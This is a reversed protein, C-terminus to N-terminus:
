LFIRVHGVPMHFSAWCQENTSFPWSVNRQPVVEYRDSHGDNFLQHITSAPSPTSFLSVRKCQQPLTLQNLWQPFCYPLEEFFSFASKGYSGVIGTRLMYRSYFVGQFCEHVRTNMAACHVTALVPSCGLHGEVSWYIFFIYTSICVSFPISSLCKFCSIIGNATAHISRSILMTLSTSLFLFVIKMHYWGYTSELLFMDTFCSSVWLCLSCAQPQWPPFSQSNPILLHLRNKYLISLFSTRCYPVPFEIWYRRMFWSLFFIYTSSFWNETCCFHVINLYNKKIKLFTNNIYRCHFMAKGVFTRRTLDITKGTAMDPHSLQITFFASCRFISANSSHHRLLSKVTGQVALLNLWDMRFSILGPRENSPSISFSFSWYKPGRMLVTSDNSCVRISPSIPPLLLLLHCLILHSSPVVSKISMPKLLSWSNTMTLSAQRATIWPTAFLRVRSHLQVSSFSVNCPM